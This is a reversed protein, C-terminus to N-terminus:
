KQNIKKPIMPPCCTFLNIIHILKGQRQFFTTLAKRQVLIYGINKKINQKRCIAVCTSLSQIVKVYQCASSYVYTKVLPVFSLSLFFFFSLSIFICLTLSLYISLNAM